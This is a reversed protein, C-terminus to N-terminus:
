TGMQWSTLYRKQAPSLRDTKIGWAKLQLRAIKQDITKPLTYVGAKLQNQTLYLLAYAQNAFSLAMIASPHGEAASLNVLRGQALLYIKNSGIWYCALQPRIQKIKAANKKMWAVDIEIDFHGSNAIIAGSKM